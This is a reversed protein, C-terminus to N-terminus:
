VVSKRDTQEISLGLRSREKEAEWIDETTVEGDALLVGVLEQYERIAWRRDADRTTTPGTESRADDLARSKRPGPQRPASFSPLPLELSRLFKYSKGRALHGFREHGRKTWYEQYYQVLETAAIADAAAWHGQVIEISAEMCAQRLTCRKGLGLLPRMYMACLHPIEFAHGCRALEFRLFRLDFYVNYSFLVGDDCAALIDSAIASFTPADRVDRDYIGHVETGAMPREPNVLTDLVLEPAEGPNIRIICVEVVRDMGPSLGTTEIDVVVLPTAALQREAAPTATQM